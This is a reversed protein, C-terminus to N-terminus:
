YNFYNSGKTTKEIFKFFKKAKPTGDAIDLVKIKQKKFYAEITKEIQENNLESIWDGYGCEVFDDWEQEANYEEVPKSAM